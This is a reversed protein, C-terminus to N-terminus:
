REGLSKCAESDAFAQKWEEAGDLSELTAATSSIDSSMTLLAASTTNVAELVDTPTAINATADKIQSASKELEDRLDDIERKAESTAEKPPSGLAGVDGALTKNANSVETAATEIKAKSLEDVNKLTSGVSELSDKWKTLAGCFGDAWAASANSSESKDSSGCGAAVLALAAVGAALIAIGRCTFPTRRARGGMLASREYLELVDLLASAPWVDPLASTRLSQQSPGHAVRLAGADDRM